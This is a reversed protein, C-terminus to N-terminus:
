RSDRTWRPAKGEEETYSWGTALLDMVTEFHLGTMAAVLRAMEATKGAQRGSHQYEYTPAPPEADVIEVLSMTMEIGALGPLWRDSDFDTREDIIRDLEAAADRLTYVRV